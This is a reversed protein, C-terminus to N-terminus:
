QSAEHRGNNDTTRHLGDNERVPNSLVDYVETLKRIAQTDSACLSDKKQFKM